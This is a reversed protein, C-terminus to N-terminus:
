VSWVLRAQSVDFYTILKGEPAECPTYEDSGPSFTHFFGSTRKTTVGCIKFRTVFRDGKENMDIVESGDSLTEALKHSNEDMGKDGELYPNLQKVAAQGLDWYILFKYFNNWDKIVKDDDEEINMTSDKTVNFPHWDRIEWREFGFRQGFNVVSVSREDKKKHDGAQYVYERVDELWVEQHELADKIAFDLVKPDEEPVHDASWWYNWFQTIASCLWGYKKLLTIAVIYTRKDSSWQVLDKALWDAQEYTVGEPLEDDVKINDWLKLTPQAERIRLLDSIEEVSVMDLFPLERLLIPPIEAFIDYANRWREMDDKTIYAYLKKFTKGGLFNNDWYDNNWEKQVGAVFNYCSVTEPHDTKVKYPAKKLKDDEFYHCVTKCDIAKYPSCFDEIEKNFKRMIPICPDLNRKNIKLVFEGIGTQENFKQGLEIWQNRHKRCASSTSYQGTSKDTDGKVMNWVQRGVETGVYQAYKKWNVTKDDVTCMKLLEKLAKEPPMSLSWPADIIIRKFNESLNLSDVFKGVTDELCYGYFKLYFIGTNIRVQNVYHTLVNLKERNIPIATSELMSGYYFNNHYPENARPYRDKLKDWILKTYFSDYICYKGLTWPDCMEWENGWAERIRKQYGAKIEKSIRPVDEPKINCGEIRREIADNMVKVLGERYYSYNPDKLREFYVDASPCAEWDRGDSSRRKERGWMIKNFYDQEFGLDDDWSPVGLYYQASPKLGARFDDEIVLAWADPFLFTKQWIHELWRIEFNCNYVVMRKYNKTVFEKVSQYMPGNYDHYDRCNVYFGYNSGVISFGLTKFGKTLPFGRSEADFGLFEGTPNLLELKLLGQDIDKLDLIDFDKLIPVPKELDGEAFFDIKSYDLSGNITGYSCVLKVNNAMSTYPLTVLTNFNYNRLGIHIFGSDALEKIPQWTETGFIFIATDRLNPFYYQSEPDSFREPSVFTGESLKTSSLLSRAFESDVIIRRLM